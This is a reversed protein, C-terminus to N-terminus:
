RHQDTGPWRWRGNRRWSDYKNLWVAAKKTLLALSLSASWQGSRMVCMGHDGYRHECASDITHYPLEIDPLEYPYAAPITIKVFYRNGYSTSIEGQISTVRSGTSFFTFNPAYSRLKEQEVNMRPRDLESGAFILERTAQLPSM